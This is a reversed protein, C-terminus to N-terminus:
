TRAEHFEIFACLGQTEQSAMLHPLGVKKKEQESSSKFITTKAQKMTDQVKQM